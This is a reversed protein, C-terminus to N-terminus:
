QGWDFAYMAICKRLVLFRKLQSVIESLAAHIKLSRKHRPGAPLFLLIGVPLFRGVASMAVQWDLRCLDM